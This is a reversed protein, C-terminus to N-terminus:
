SEPYEDTRIVSKNQPDTVAPLLGSKYLIMQGTEHALFISLGSALGTKPDSLLVYIPRWLPYNERRIDGAYPLYSNAVTAPDEKSIRMLRIKDEYGAPANNLANVGFIGIANPMQMVKEIVELSNHLAYINPTLPAEQTISDAIYRVVGSVKHDVIVRVAGIRTDPNLQSWQTIEGTLIKKLDSMSLISDNNTKNMILAIADFGILNERVKLSLGLQDVAALERPRLGRTTLAFRVSDETFLRIVEPESAYIPVIVADPNHAEFVEIAADMLSRFNEDCAIRILGSNYTDDWWPDKTTSKKCSTFVVTGFLISLFLKRM